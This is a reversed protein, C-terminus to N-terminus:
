CVTEAAAAALGLPFLGIAPYVPPIEGGTGWLDTRSGRSEYPEHSGEAQLREVVLRCLFCLNSGMRPQGLGERPESM